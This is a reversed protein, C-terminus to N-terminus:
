KGEQKSNNINQRFQEYLDTFEENDIKPNPLFFFTGVSREMAIARDLFDYYANASALQSQLYNNQADILETITVAGNAYSSEILVLTQQAAKEAVRSLEINAVSSSVNLVSDRVRNEVTLTQNEIQLELKQRQKQARKRQVNDSNGNFLPISFVLGVNYDDDLAFNPDPQGVGGREFVRNMQANASVTPIYRRWGYQKLDRETAALNHKLIALEPSYQLAQNILFQEFIEQELPNDLTRELREFDFDKPALLERDNLVGEIGIRLQVPRNLIVNLAHQGQRYANVAEILGQLNTALESRFRFIDAKGARGTEFNQEAVKLNRKTIDLNEARSQLANRLRLLNFSAQSTTLVTDLVATNYSEQQALLLEKTVGIAASADESYLVQTVGLSGSLSREPNQGGSVAALDPDVYRNSGTLSLDPYYSTKANSVDQRALDVDVDAARLSLNRELALKIAEILTYSEDVVFDTFNGVLNTSAIQSFRVPVDIKEATNFNLTLTDSLEVYVPRNSLNEGNVVAEVSLAIRRFLRELNSESQNTALWGKEVNQVRNSTFSPKKQDILMDAMKEIDQNSIGFGEALYVSDFGAVDREFGSIDEFQFMEFDAGLDGFAENLVRRSEATIWPGFGFVATKKFPYVAHFDILDKKYSLPAVMYTFNSIGSTKKELDIKIIDSNVAGFLITPKSHQRQRTILDNNIAGFALIIDINRSLLDKYQEAARDADFENILVNSEDAQIIADNGVVAKIEYILKDTVPRFDENLSDTLIGLNVIRKAYSSQCAILSLFFLWVIAIKKLMM